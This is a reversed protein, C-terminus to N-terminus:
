TQRRSKRELVMLAVLLVLSAGGLRLGTREVPLGTWTLSVEHRGAPLEVMILGTAKDITSTLAGGDWALSWAPFAFVPLRLTTPGPTDIRWRRTRGVPEYERCLMHRSACEAELGGEEIYRAWDRGVTRPRYESLGRYPGVPAGHLDARYGDSMTFKAYIATTMLLSLALPLGVLVVVMRPYGAIWVRWVCVMNAVLGVATTVYLFRHPFQVLRLPSSSAWLPFSLESSLFLSVWTVAALGALASWTTDRARRAKVLYWTVTLATALLVLPLPWQFTMWRMGFIVYTVTPFIFANYTVHETIWAEPRILARAQLAPLLYPMTLGLGLLASLGWVLVPRLRRPSEETSILHRVNVFPLCTYMMLGSLTHTGVLVALALALPADVFRRTNIRLSFAVAATAATFSLGWPLGNFLHFLMFTMPAAQVVTAGALSWSLPCFRRLATYAFLGTAWIGAFEVLKMACWTDSCFSAVLATGYYYLPSYFLLAPEGLGQNPMPMWRPYPDGRHLAAVFEVAWRYHVRLDANPAVLDAALRPGHLVLANVGTIAVPILIRLLRDWKQDVSRVESNGLTPLPRRM